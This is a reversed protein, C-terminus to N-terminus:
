YRTNESMHGLAATMMAFNPFIPHDSTALENDQASYDIFVDLRGFMSSIQQMARQAFGKSSPDGAIVLCRQGLDEVDEKLNLTNPPLTDTYVLVIDAGRQALATILAHSNDNDGSIVLVVKGRLRNIQCMGNNDLKTLTLQGNRYSYRRDYM